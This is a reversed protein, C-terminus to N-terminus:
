SALKGKADRVVRKTKTVSDAVLDKAKNKQDDDLLYRSEDALPSCIDPHDALWRHLSSTGSKPAGAIVIHPLTPPAATSAAPRATTDVPTM